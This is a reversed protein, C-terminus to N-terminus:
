KRPDPADQQASEYVMIQDPDILLRVAQGPRFAPDGAEEFLLRHPGCTLWIQSFRGRFTIADVVAAIENLAPETTSGSAADAMVPKVLVTVATAQRPAPRAPRFRGVPTVIEGSALVRGPLLNHFGLFQAVFPTAPREHVAQPPGIQEIQGANMVALRDGVAFAETQDHTVYIATMGVRKLIARVDLMLRERLARDLAGLPEDLLLLRPGPALARALAVRQQEGGSLQAIERTELGGLDVLALMEATRRAIDAAPLRHMRLGFAVNDRVNRHPFLAFDQFMMGFDRAHPPVGSLDAGDFFVRGRDPRELGAVIRLLTTKGCGSPGLLCLIEGQELTLSVDRVAATAGDFAKSVNAIELLTM